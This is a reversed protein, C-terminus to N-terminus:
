SGNNINGLIEILRQDKIQHAFDLPTKGSKNVSNPKANNQILLEVFAWNGRANFVAYWLPSNGFYDKLELMGGNQIIAKALELNPSFGLYHLSSQGKHDQINVDISRYVLDFAIEWHQYAIAKHLLSMGNQNIINLEFMEIYNKYMELNGNEVMHFIGIKEDM